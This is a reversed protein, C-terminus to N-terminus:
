SPPRNGSHISPDLGLMVPTPFPNNHGCKVIWVDHEPM